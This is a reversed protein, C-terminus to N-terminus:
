RGWWGRGAMVFIFAMYWLIEMDGLFTEPTPHLKEGVLYAAFFAAFIFVSGRAIAGAIADSWEREANTQTM